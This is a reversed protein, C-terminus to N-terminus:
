VQRLVFAAARAERLRRARRADAEDDRGWLSIQWDEDVHAAAWAAEFPLHARQVALALLTSGFITTLVHVAALPLAPLDSVAAAIGTKVEAPQAVPMLGVTTSFHAGFRAAAWALVPDWHQAQAAVLGEPAEARYCLLDSGAYQVIEARVAAEQGAVADLATCVLTTVPMTAPAIVTVQAAWEAAIAEALPKTDATVVSKRPTKVPRGDLLIRYGGAVADLTVATYFRKPLPAGMRDTIEPTKAGTPPLESMTLSRGVPEVGGRRIRCALRLVDAPEAPLIAL